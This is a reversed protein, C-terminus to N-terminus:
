EEPSAAFQEALRRALETVLRRDPAPRQEVFADVAKMVVLWAPDGTVSALAM